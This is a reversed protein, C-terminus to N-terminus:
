RTGKTDIQHERCYNYLQTQSIKIGQERAWELNQRVSLTTDYWEEVPKNMPYMNIENESCFDKLTNLCVKIDNAKAYKYNDNISMSTDYWERISQHNLWKRVIIAHKKRPIGHGICYDADTKFAGHKSPNLAYVDEIEMKLVSRVDEILINNTLVRDSNDYFYKRRLVLNYLLELFSANPKIARMILTDIYLKKRRGEGDKYKRIKPKIGTWDIRINLKYYAEPFLAYGDTNYELMTENIISTHAYKQLFTTVSDDLNQIILLEDENFNDDELDKKCFQRDSIYQLPPHNYYIESHCNQLFPNKEYILYSCLVRIKDSSNGNMLQTAVSGCNDKTEELGIKKIFIDYMYKYEDVSAIQEDLLYILRFRHLGNKGDSITTYAISPKLECGDLFSEMQQPYDDVDIFVANTHMFNRKIRRNDKFVHCISHGSKIKEILEDSNLNEVHFSMSKYDEPTPKHNYCRDSISIDFRYSESKISNNKM